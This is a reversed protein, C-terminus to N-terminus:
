VIFFLVKAGKALANRGQRCEASTRTSEKVHFSRNKKLKTSWSLKQRSIKMKIKEQDGGREYWNWKLIISESKALWVIQFLRNIIVLVRLVLACSALHYHILLEFRFPSEQYKGKKVRKEEDKRLIKKQRRLCNKVCLYLSGCKGGNERCIIGAWWYDM